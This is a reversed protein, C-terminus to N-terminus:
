PRKYTMTMTSGNDVISLTMETATLRTINVSSEIGDSSTTTLQDSNVVYTGGTSVMNGDMFDNSAFSGDEKYSANSNEIMEEKMTDFMSQQEAPIEFGMDLDSLEWFGVVTPESAEELMGEVDAVADGIAGSCSSLGIALCIGFTYISKKM